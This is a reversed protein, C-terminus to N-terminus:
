LRSRHTPHQTGKQAHYSRTGELLLGASKGDLPSDRLKARHESGAVLGSYKGSSSTSKMVSGM